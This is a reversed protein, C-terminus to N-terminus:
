LRALARSGLHDIGVEGIQALEVVPGAEVQGGPAAGTGAFGQGTAHLADGVPQFARQRRQGRIASTHNTFRSQHIKIASPFRRLRDPQALPHVEQLRLVKIRDDMPAAESYRVASGRISFGDIAPSTELPHGPAVPSQVDILSLKSIIFGVSRTLPPRPRQLQGLRRRGM